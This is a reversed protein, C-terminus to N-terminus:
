VRFGAVLAELTAAREALHRTQAALEAVTATTEESAAAVEQAAAANEESVAAVSAIGEEAEHAGAELEQAAAAVQQVQGAVRGVEARIRAFAEAAAQVRATGDEVEREGRGMAAVARDTGEQIEGVIGAISAAATQASEALKRVEDAVVAFGRGQEGARAAEIAANLALLNTQDAIEGITGVIQGIAQGKGGLDGVVAAVQGVSDRIRAMADGAQDVADAGGGAAQDADAAAGAAEQGAAAVQHVRRGMEGIAGSVGETATAQEGSGRAVGDVTAAIQAVAQGAQESGAAMDASSTAVDRASEAVRAVVERTRGIMQAVGRSLRGVEDPSADDPTVTLDGEAAAAAAVELRGIPRLVSRAILWAFLVGIGLAGALLVLLMLQARGAAGAAAQEGAALAQRSEDILAVLDKMLAMRSEAAPPVAADVEAKPAGRRLLDVLGDYLPATRRWGASIRAAAARDASGASADAVRRVDRDMAARAADYGNLQTRDGSAIFTRIALAQDALSLRADQGAMAATAEHAIVRDYGSVASRLQLIGM